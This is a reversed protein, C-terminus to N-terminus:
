QRRTSMFGTITGSDPPNPLGSVQLYRFGHYEFKPHWIEVGNGSLTYTDVVPYVPSVPGYFQSQDVTGDPRLQEGIMMTVKTGALVASTYNSGAQSTSEWTSSM